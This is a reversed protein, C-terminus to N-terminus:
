VTSSDPNNDIMLTILSERQNKDDDNETLSATKVASQKGTQL